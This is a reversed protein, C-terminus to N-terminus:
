VFVHHLVKRIEEVAFVVLFELLLLLFADVLDLFLETENAEVVGTLKDLVVSFLEDVEKCLQIILAGVHMDDHGRGTVKAFEWIIVNGSWVKQLLEM